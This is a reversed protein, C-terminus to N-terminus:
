DIQLSSHPHLSNTQINQNTLRNWLQKYWVIKEKTPKTESLTQLLKATEQDLQIQPQTYKKSIYYYYENGMSIYPVLDYGEKYELTGTIKKKLAKEHDYVKALLLKYDSHLLKLANLIQDEKSLLM